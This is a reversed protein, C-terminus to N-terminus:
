EVIVVNDGSAFKTWLLLMMISIGEEVMSVGVERVVGDSMM